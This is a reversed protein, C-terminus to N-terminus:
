NKFLRKIYLSLNKMIDDPHNAVDVMMSGKKEYMYQFVEREKDSIEGNSILISAITANKRGEAVALKVDEISESTSEISCAPMGDSIVMLLKNKASTKQLDKLAVRIAFGDRNCNNAICYDYINPTKSQKDKFDKWVTLKSGDWGHSFTVTKVKVGPLSSLASEVCIATGIANRYKCEDWMSGSVDILITVAYDTEDQTKNREFIASDNISLRWLRSTDVSGRRQAKYSTNDNKLAKEFTKKLGNIKLRFEAQPAKFPYNTPYRFKFNEEKRDSSYKSNIEDLDIDDFYDKKQNKVKSEMEEYKEAREFAKQAEEEIEEGEIDSQEEYDENSNESSSPNSRYNPCCREKSEDKNDSTEDNNGDSSERESSSNSKSDGSSKDVDESDEKKSNESYDKSSNKSSQSDTQSDSEEKSSEGEDQSNNKDEKSSEGENDSNDESDKASQSDCTDDDSYEGEDQSDSEDNSSESEQNDKIQKMMKRVTNEVYKSNDDDEGDSTTYNESSLEDLLSQLLESLDNMDPVYDKLLEVIELCRDQAFSYSNSLVGKLILPYIEEEILKQEKEELVDEFNSPYIGLKSIFLITNLMNTLVDDSAEIAGDKRILIDNLFRIHKSYGPLAECLLREIRGDEVINLVSKAVQSNYGRKDAERMYERLGDFNSWRVHASEHGTCAKIASYMKAYTLGKCAEPLGVVIKRGDTYAGDTKTTLQFTTKKGERCLIHAINGEMIRKFGERNFLREISELDMVKDSVRINRLM